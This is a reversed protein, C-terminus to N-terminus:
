RGVRDIPLRRNLLATEDVVTGTFDVLEIPDEKPDIVDGELLAAYLKATERPSKERWGAKWRAFIPVHRLRGSKV